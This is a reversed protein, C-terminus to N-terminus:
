LLNKSQDIVICFDMPIAQHYDATSQLLIHQDAARCLTLNSVLRASILPHYDDTM